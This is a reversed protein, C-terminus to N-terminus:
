GGIRIGSVMQAPMGPPAATPIDFTHLAAIQDVRVAWAGQDPPCADGGIIQEGKLQYYRSQWKGAIDMAEKQPLIAIIYNGSNLILKLGIKNM